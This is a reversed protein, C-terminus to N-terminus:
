TRLLRSPVYSALDKVLPIEGWIDLLDLLEITREKDYKLAKSLKDAFYKQKINAVAGKNNKVWNVIGSDLSVGLKAALYIARVIRNNDYALTQEPALCTRIVKRGIDDIALGTPDLIRKLDMSMLATNCTFDRSYLEKQMETPHQINAKELLHTIGPIRFNSSFDLRLGGSLSINTHGDPMVKYSMIPSKLRTAVERSLYHIGADGTTIDVDNFENPNGLIRDRPLGGVIFPESIGKAKALDKIFILLKSLKM